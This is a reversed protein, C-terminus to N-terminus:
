FDAVGEPLRHKKFYSDMTIYASIIRMSQEADYDRFQRTFRDSEEELKVEHLKSARLFPGMTPDYEGFASVQFEESLEIGRNMAGWEVICGSLGHLFKLKQWFNTPIKDLRRAAFSLRDKHLLIEELPVRKALEIPVWEETLSNKYFDTYFYAGTRFDMGRGIAHHLDSFYEQSRQLEFMEPRTDTETM